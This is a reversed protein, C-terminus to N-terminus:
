RVVFKKNQPLYGEITITCTYTGAPLSGTNIGEGINANSMILRGSMDYINVGITDHGPSEIKMSQGRTVPNPYLKIEPKPRSDPKVQVVFQGGPAHTLVLDWIGRGWTGFRVTNISQIYEASEFDIVPVGTTMLSYWKNTAKAYVYPGAETAAFLFSDNKYAALRNVLTQPQNTGLATFHQGHDRSIYVAANSYGSGGFYVKGLSDPAAVISAGYLWDGQPIFSSTQTWSSGANNSYFFRGDETGVYIYSNSLKSVAIASIGYAGTIHNQRFNFSDQSFSTDGSSTLNIKILYSGSDRYLNGGGVLINEDTANSFYNSTPPLWGNNPIQVGPIHWCYPWRTLVTDPFLSCIDRYLYVDHNCYMVWLTKAVGNDRTIRMQGDDGSIFQRSTFLGTGGANLSVQIGQDQMGGYVINPSDPHTIHDIYQNINHGSLSLNTVTVGQDNSIYVGADCSFICFEAGSSYKSFYIDRIDSHLNQTSNHYYAVWDNVKAFVVGSDHSRWGHATGYLVKNPYDISVGLQLFSVITDRTSKLIWNAGANTSHYLKAQSGGDSTLLYFHIKGNPLIQAALKAHNHTTPFTATNSLKTITGRYVQYLTDRTYTQNNTIGLMYIRADGYARSLSLGYQDYQPYKKILSFSQGNNSSWYLYMKQVANWASSEVCNMVM